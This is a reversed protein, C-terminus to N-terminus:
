RVIHDSPLPSFTDGFDDWNASLSQLSEQYDVDHMGEGDRVQGPNPERITVTVGDSFATYTRNLADTITVFSVYTKLNELLMQDDYFRMGNGPIDTM